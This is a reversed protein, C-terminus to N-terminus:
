TTLLGYRPVYPPTWVNVFNLELQMQQQIYGICECDSANGVNNTEIRPQSEDVYELDPM